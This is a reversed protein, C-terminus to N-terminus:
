HKRRSLWSADLLSRSFPALQRREAADLEALASQLLEAARELGPVRAVDKRIYSLSERLAGLNIPPIGRRLHYPGDM